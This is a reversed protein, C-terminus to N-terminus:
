YCCSLFVFTEAAAFLVFLRCTKKYDSCCVMYVQMCVRRCAQKHVKCALRCVQKRAMCVQKCVLKHVKYVQTCVQKCCSYYNCIFKM